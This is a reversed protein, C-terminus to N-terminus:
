ILESHFSSCNFSNAYRCVFRVRHLKQVGSAVDGLLVGYVIVCSSNLNDISRIEVSDVSAQKYGKDLMDDLMALLVRSPVNTLKEEGFTILNTM